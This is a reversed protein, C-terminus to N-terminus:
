TRRVGPPQSAVPPGAACVDGSTASGGFPAPRRCSVGLPTPWLRSRGFPRNAKLGAKAGDKPLPPQSAVTALWGLPPVRLTPGRDINRRRDSPAKAVSSFASSASLGPAISRPVLWCSGFSGFWSAQSSAVSRLKRDIFETAGLSTAFGRLSTFSNESLFSLTTPYGLPVFPGPASPM